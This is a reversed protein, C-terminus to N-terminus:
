FGGVPAKAAGPETKFYTDIRQFGALWAVINNPFVGIRTNYRQVAENYRRREVAIHNEADALEDQLRLFKQNERLQPYSESVALLRGLANDLRANAAMRAQPEQAALLNARAEDAEALAGKGDHFYGKLVEVLGPVVDARRRLVNEVQAWASRITERDAVLENRLSYYRAGFIIGLAALVLIVIWLPRM